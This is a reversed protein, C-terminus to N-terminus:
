PTDSSQEARAIAEDFKAMVIKHAYKSSGSDNLDIIVSTDALSTLNPQIAVALAHLAKREYPGDIRRLAGVACWAKARASNPSVSYGDAGGIAFQGQIWHNPNEILAKARRLTDAVSSPDSIPESPKENDPM